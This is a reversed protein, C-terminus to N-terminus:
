VAQRDYINLRAHTVRAHDLVLSRRGVRDILDLVKEVRDAPRM